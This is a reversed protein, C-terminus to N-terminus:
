LMASGRPVRALEEDVTVCPIGRALANDRCGTSGRSGRWILALLLDPRETELMRANRQHGAMRGYAEWERSSVPYPAREWRRVYAFRDAALDIGRAKGHALRVDTGYWDYIVGLCLVLPTPTTAWGDRSGTVTLKLKRGATSGAVRQLADELADLYGIV